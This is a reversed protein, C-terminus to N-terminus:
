CRGVIDRYLNIARIMDPHEGYDAPRQLASLSRRAAPDLFMDVQQAAGDLDFPIKFRAGLEGIATRWDLLLEDFSIYASEPVTKTFQVIGQMYHHWLRVGQVFGMDGRALLSHAVEAPHRVPVLYVTRYGALGLAAHWLPALLAIRPDKILILSQGAYERVILDRADEIMWQTRESELPLKWSTQRWDTGQSALYAENLEIVAEPEWFGRPNNNLAPPRMLEPLFAGCLNLTRALASTGSRHMGLVVVANKEVAVTRPAMPTPAKERSSVDLALDRMLTGPLYGGMGAELVEKYLLTENDPWQPAFPNSCQHRASAEILPLIVQAMEERNAHLSEDITNSGHMRYRYLPAELVIPEAVAVARLCFEWDHNYRQGGFGGLQEFLERAIFLNGSSIAINYTVLAFSNSSLGQRARQRRRHFAEPEDINPLRSGPSWITSVWTFGWKAGPRAVSDVLREIREPLYADDSNLFALFEGRALASGENLTAHAGRNERSIFTVPRTANAIRSRIVEVTHDSSGDDIIILEIHPYTQRLVSDIAEVVYDAHNYTPLVVSVLPAEVERRHKLQSLWDQHASLLRTQISQAAPKLLRALLLGINHRVATSQWACAEAVRWQLELAERYKSRQYLVVGLMSEVDHDGPIQELASRYLSEALGLRGSRHADLAQDRISREPERAAGCCYKYRRSSGCPCPANRGRLPIAPVPSLLALTAEEYPILDPSPSSFDVLWHEGWGAVTHGWERYVRELYGPQKFAALKRRQDALWAADTAHPQQMRAALREVLTGGDMILTYVRVHRACTKLADIHAFGGASSRQSVFDYHVCLRQIKGDGLEALQYAHLFLWQDPEDMGFSQRILASSEACLIHMLTSKGAGSPGALLILQDILLM